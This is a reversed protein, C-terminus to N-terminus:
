NLNLPKPINIKIKKFNVIFILNHEHVIFFEDCFYPFKEFTM